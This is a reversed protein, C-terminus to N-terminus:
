TKKRTSSSHASRNKLGDNVSKWMWTAFAFCKKYLMALKLICSSVFGRKVLMKKVLFLLRNDEYTCNNGDVSLRFSTSTLIQNTNIKSIDIFHISRLLFLHNSYTPPNFTTPTDPILSISFARHTCKIWGIRPFISSGIKEEVYYPM